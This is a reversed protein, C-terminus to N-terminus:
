HVCDEFRTEGLGSSSLLKGAFGDVLEEVSKGHLSEYQNRM